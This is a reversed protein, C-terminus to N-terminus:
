DEPEKKRVIEGELTHRVVLNLVLRQPCSLREAIIGDDIVVVQM